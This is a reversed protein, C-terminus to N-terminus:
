CAKESIWEFLPKLADQLMEKYEYWEESEKSERPINVKTAVNNKGLRRITSPEANSPTGTGKKAYRNYYSFHLSYFGEAESSCNVTQILSPFMSRIADLAKDSLEAPMDAFLIAVMNGLKDNIKVVKGEYLQADLLTYVSSKKKSGTELQKSIMKECEKCTKPKKASTAWRRHDSTAKIRAELKRSDYSLITNKKDNPDFQTDIVVTNNFNIMKDWNRIPLSPLTPLQLLRGQLQIQGLQSLLEQPELGMEKAGDRLARLVSLSWVRDASIPETFSVWSTSDRPKVPANYGLSDFFQDTESINVVDLQAGRRGGPITYSDSFVLDGAIPYKDRCWSVAPIISNKIKTGIPSVDPYRLAKALECVASGSLGSLTTRLRAVAILVLFYVSGAGALMSAKLGLSYYRNLWQKDLKGQSESQLRIFITSKKTEQTDNMCIQVNAAFEMANLLGQFVLTSELVDNEHCNLALYKMTDYSGPVRPAISAVTQAEQVGFTLTVRGSIVVHMLEDVNSSLRYPKDKAVTDDAVWCVTHFFRNAAKSLVPTEPVPVGNNVVYHIIGPNTAPNADEEEMAEQEERGHEDEDEFNDNDEEEPHLEPGLLHRRAQRELQALRIFTANRRCREREIVVVPGGQGGGSGGGGGRGQSESSDLNWGTSPTRGDQNNKNGNGPQNAGNAGNADGPDKLHSLDNSQNDNPPVLVRYGLTAQPLPPLSMSGAPPSAM